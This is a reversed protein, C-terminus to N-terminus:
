SPNSAYPTGATHWDTRLPDILSRNHITTQNGSVPPASFQCSFYVCFLSRWFSFLAAIFIFVLMLDRDAFREVHLRSFHSLPLPLGQH